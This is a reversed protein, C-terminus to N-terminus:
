KSSLVAIHVDHTILVHALILAPRLVLQMPLVLVSLRIAIHVFTGTLSM